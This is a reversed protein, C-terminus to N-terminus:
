GWCTSLSPNFCAWAAFLNKPPDRSRPLFIPRFTKPWTLRGPFFRISYRAPVIATPGPVPLDLLAFINFRKPVVLAEGPKPHFSSRESLGCLFYATSLGCPRRYSGFLNRSHPCTSCLLGSVIRPFRPIDFHGFDHGTMRQSCIGNDKRSILSTIKRSRGVEGVPPRTKQLLRRRSVPRPIRNVYAFRGLFFAFGRSDAPRYFNPVLRKACLLSRSITSYASSFHRGHLHTPM